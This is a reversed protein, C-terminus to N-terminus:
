ATLPALKLREQNGLHGNKTTHLANKQYNCAWLFETESHTARHAHLVVYACPEPLHSSLQVCRRAQERGEPGLMDGVYSGKTAAWQALNLLLLRQTIASRQITSLTSYAPLDSVTLNLCRGPHPLGLVGSVGGEWTLTRATWRNPLLHSPKCMGIYNDMHASNHM